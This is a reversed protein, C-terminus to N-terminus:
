SPQLILYQQWYSPIHGGIIGWSLDPSSVMAVAASGWPRWVASGVSLVPGWSWWFHSSRLSFGVGHEQEEKKEREKSKRHRTGFTPRSHKTLTVQTVHRLGLQLPTQSIFCRVDDTEAFPPCTGRQSEPRPFTGLTLPTGSAISCFDRSLCDASSLRPLSPLLALFYLSLCFGSSMISAESDLHAEAKLFFVVFGPRNINASSNKKQGLNCVGKQTSCRDSTM